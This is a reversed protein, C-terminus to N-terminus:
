NKFTNALDAVGNVYDYFEKLSVTETPTVWDLAETVNELTKELIVNKSIM